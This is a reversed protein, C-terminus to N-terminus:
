VFSKVAENSDNDQPRVGVGFDPRSAVVHFFDRKISLIRQRPINRKLPEEVPDPFERDRYYGHYLTTDPTACAIQCHGAVEHEKAM